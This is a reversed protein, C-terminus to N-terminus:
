CVGGNKSGTTQYAGGSKGTLKLCARGTSENIKITSKSADIDASKLGAAVIAADTLTQAATRCNKTICVATFSPDVKAISSDNIQWAQYEREFWNAASDAATQFAKNRTSSITTLVAPITIGVVIALIIIVALLEVLTFGKRNLKKM